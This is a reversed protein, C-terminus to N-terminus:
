VFRQSDRLYKFVIELLRENNTEMGYFITQLIQIKNNLDLNLTTLSDYFETRAAAYATCYIFFHSITEKQGCNPCSADEVLNATFRHHCLASLGMCLRALCIGAWGPCMTSYLIRGTALGNILKKFINVTPANVTTIPLRNWMKM